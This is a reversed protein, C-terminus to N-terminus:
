TGPNPGQPVCFIDSGLIDMIYIITRSRALCSTCMGNSIATSFRLGSPHRSYSHMSDFVALAEGTANGVLVVMLTSCWLGGRFRWAALEVVLNDRQKGAASVKRQKEKGKSQKLWGGLAKTRAMHDKTRIEEDVAPQCKDCVPPYRVHLSNRYDPLMELRREYSPDQLLNLLNLLRSFNFYM